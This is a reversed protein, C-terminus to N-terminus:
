VEKEKIPQSCAIKKKTDLIIIDDKRKKIEVTHGKELLAVITELMENTLKM